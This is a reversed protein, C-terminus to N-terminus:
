TQIIHTFLGKQCVDTFKMLLGLCALVSLVVSQHAEIPERIKMCRKSLADILGISVAYSQFFLFFFSKLLHFFIQVRFSDMHKYQSEIVRVWYDCVYILNQHQKKLNWSAVLGCHWLLNNIMSLDYVIEVLSKKGEYIDRRKTLFSLSFTLLHPHTDVFCLDLTYISSDWFVHAIHM